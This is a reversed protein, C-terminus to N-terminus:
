DELAFVEVSVKDATDADINVYGGSQNYFATPFPGIYREDGPSADAAITVTRDAVAQGDVTTPIVFTLVVSSTDVNVARLFVNGKRNLIAVGDAGILVSVPTDGDRSLKQPTIQTRAM